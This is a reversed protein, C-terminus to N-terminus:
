MGVTDTHIVIKESQKVLVLFIASLLVPAVSALRRWGGPDHSILWGLGNPSLFFIFIHAATYTKRERKRLPRFQAM